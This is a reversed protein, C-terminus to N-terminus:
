SHISDRINAISLLLELQHIAAAAVSNYPQAEMRWIIM